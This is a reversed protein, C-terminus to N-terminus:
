LPPLGFTELIDAIEGGGRKRHNAMAESAGREDGKSICDLIDRHEANSIEFSSRLKLTITQTRNAQSYLSDTIAILRSNGSLELVGRHFLDDGEAWQRFDTSKSAAEMMEIMRQNPVICIRNDTPELRITSM